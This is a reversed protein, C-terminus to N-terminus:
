FSYGAIVEISRQCILLQEAAYCLSFGSDLHTAAPFCLCKNSENEERYLFWATNGLHQSPSMVVKPAISLQLTKEILERPMNKFRFWEILENNDGFHGHAM